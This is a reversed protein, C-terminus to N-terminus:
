RSPFRELVSKVMRWGDYRWALGAAAAVAIPPLLNRAFARATIMAVVFYNFRFFGKRDNVNPYEGNPVDKGLFRCLPVWGDQSRFELLRDKPVVDRVHQYHDLYRKRCAALFEESHFDMKDRNFIGSLCQLM